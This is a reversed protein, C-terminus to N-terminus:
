VQPITYYGTCDSRKNAGQSSPTAIGIQAAPAGAYGFLTVDWYNTPLTSTTAEILISSLWPEWYGNSCWQSVQAYWQYANGIHTTKIVNTVVYRQYYVNGSTPVLDSVATIVPLPGVIPCLGGPLPDPQCDGDGFDFPDCAPDEDAYLVNFGDTSPETQSASGSGFQRPFKLAATMTHDTSNPCGGDLNSCLVVGNVIEEFTPMISNLHWLNGYPGKYLAMVDTAALITGSDAINGLDPSYWSDGWNHSARATTTTDILLISGDDGFGFSGALPRVTYPISWPQWYGVSSDTIFVAGSSNVYAARGGVTAEIDVANADLVSETFAQGEPAYWISGSAGICWIDGYGDMSGNICYATGNIHTWNSGDLTMYVNGGTNTTLALIQSATNVHISAVSGQITSWEGGSEKVWAKTAADYSWVNGSADVGMVTGDAGVSAQQIAVSQTFAQWCDNTACWALNDVQGNNFNYVSYHNQGFLPLSLLLVALVLQAVKNKAM